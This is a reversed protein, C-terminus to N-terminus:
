EVSQGPSAPDVSQQVPFSESQQVPLAPETQSEAPVSEAQPASPAPEGADRATFRSGVAIVALVVLVAGAIKLLLPLGAGSQRLAAHTAPGGPVGAHGAKAPPKADPAISEILEEVDADWRTHRLEIGNRYALDGIAAPLSDASPMPAGHVLVPITPIGRKLGAEIELCVFDNPEDLRRVGRADTVGLWDKGILVLMVDTEALREELVRRFDTGLAISDVDMFVAAEGFRSVLNDFLARAEGAADERRYSIFVQM